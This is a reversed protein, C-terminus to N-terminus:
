DDLDIKGRLVEIAFMTHHIQTSVDETDLNNGSMLEKHEMLKKVENKLTEIPTTLDM